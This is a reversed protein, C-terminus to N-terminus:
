TDHLASSSDGDAQELLHAFFVAKDEAYRTPDGEGKKWRAVKTEEFRLSLDRDERLCDRIRLSARCFPSDRYSLFVRHTPEGSRPKLLVITEAAWMPPPARRFNLGEILVASEEIAQDRE